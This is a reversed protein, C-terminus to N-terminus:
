RAPAGREQEDSPRWVRRGGPGEHEQLDLARRAVIWDKPRESPLASAEGGRFAGRVIVALAKLWARCLLALRELARPHRENSSRVLRYGLLHFVERKLAVAIEPAVLLEGPRGRRTRVGPLLRPLLAHMWESRRLRASLGLWVSGVPRVIFFADDGPRRVRQRNPMFLVGGLPALIREDGEVAILDGRRVRDFARLPARVLFDSRCVVQRHRIDYARGARAGAARKLLARPDVRHDIERIPLAEAAHLATWVGAELVDISAPDDHAGGEIVMSVCGRRGTTWDMLLGELEEELGFVIPLGFRRAFRRAPLADEVGIFPPSPASVTHLDLVFVPGRAARVERDFADVFARLEAEEAALLAPERSRVGAITEPDFIRNMDRDLFRPPPTEPTAGALAALNGALAVIRGRMAAPRADALREIVRRAAILGAPENGHVGGVVVLTPGPGADFSGVIRETFEPRETAAALSM